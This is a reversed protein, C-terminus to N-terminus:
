INEKPIAMTRPMPVYNSSNIVNKSKRTSEVKFDTFNSLNGGQCKLFDQKENNRTKELEDRRSNVPNRTLFKNIEQHNHHNLTEFNASYYDHQFSQQPPKKITNTENRTSISSRELDMMHFENDQYIPMSQNSLVPRFFDYNNQNSLNNNTRTQKTHIPYPSLNM